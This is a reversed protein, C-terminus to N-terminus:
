AHDLTNTNQAKRPSLPLSRRKGSQYVEEAPVSTELKEGQM